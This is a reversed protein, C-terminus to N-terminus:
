SLPYTCPPTLPIFVPVHSIDTPRHELTIYLRFITKHRNFLVHSYIHIYKRNRITEVVRLRKLYCATIIRFSVFYGVCRYFVIYIYIKNSFNEVHFVTKLKLNYCKSPLKFRDFQSVRWSTHFIETSLDICKAMFNWFPWNKM